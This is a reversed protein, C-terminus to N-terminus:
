TRSENTGEGKKKLISIANKVADPVPLGMLGANEVISIAENAAYGIIVANRIVNTGTMKDLQAAVLIILLTMGKRCLGKWGAKSELTGTESKTSKHFVGAVILGTAYDVAMFIILTQLATDWGGLAYAVTGGVVALWTCIINKM